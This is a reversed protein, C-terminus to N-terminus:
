EAALSFLLDGFANARPLRWNGNEDPEAYGLDRTEDTVPNYCTVRYQVDPEIGRLM